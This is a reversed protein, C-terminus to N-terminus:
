KQEELVNVYPGPMEQGNSAKNDAVHPMGTTEDWILKDLYLVRYGSNNTTDYGHYLLWYEGVDDTIVACHGVGMAGGISPVVVPDGRNPAFMNRGQSDLYPGDVNQSRACVVRYTSNNGSLCTGTSLFLYYWGDKKIILSAEYNNTEFIEYGALAVKHEKQYELGNKLGLGDDTLEVLSILGGYSGFVMYLKDNDYFVHPDISNTVGIEQSNFLKGYHTWPGYPTPATAVGIGPNEDSGVSLSYYFNWNNGVKLVTPAWVGAGNTGWNPTYNAFVDSVYEWSQMDVSKWVPGRKFAVNPAFVDTQTCYMYFTGDDDRVVYPDAQYTMKREGNVLPFVPNVYNNNQAIPKLDPNPEPPEPQKCAFLAAMCCVLTLVLIWSATRKM